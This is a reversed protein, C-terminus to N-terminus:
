RGSEREARKVWLRLTEPRCSIRATISTVAGWRSDHDGEHEFVMMVANSHEEPALQNTTKSAMVGGDRSNSGGVFGTRNMCNRPRIVAVALAHVAMVIAAIPDATSFKGASRTM